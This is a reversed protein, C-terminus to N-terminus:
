GHPLIESCPPRPPTGSCFEYFLNLTWYFSSLTISPSRRRDLHGVQIQCFLKRFTCAVARNTAADPATVADVAAICGGVALSAAYFTDKCYYLDEDQATLRQLERNSAFATRALSDYYHESHCLCVTERPAPQVELPIFRRQKDHTHRADRLHWSKDSAVESLASAEEEGNGLLRHELKQMAAYIAYIRAPREYIFGPKSPDDTTIKLPRHLGMREDFALYVKTM